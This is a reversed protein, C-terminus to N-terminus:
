PSTGKFPDANSDDGISIQLTPDISNANFYRPDPTSFDPAIAQVIEVEQKKDAPKIAFSSIVVALLGSVGVVAVIIVIDKQRM